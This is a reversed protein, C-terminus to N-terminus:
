KGYYVYPAWYFPHKKASGYRGSIFELKTKNIANKYSVGSGVKEYMKKIQLKNKGGNVLALRLDAHDTTRTKRM